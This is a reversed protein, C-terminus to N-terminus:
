QSFETELIELSINSIEIDTINDFNTLKFLGWKKEIGSEMLFFLNWFVMFILNSASQM